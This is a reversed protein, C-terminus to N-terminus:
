EIFGPLIEVEPARRNSDAAIDVRAFAVVSVM